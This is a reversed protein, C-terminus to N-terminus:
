FYMLSYSDKVQYIEKDTTDDMKKEECKEIALKGAPLVYICYVKVKRNINTNFL